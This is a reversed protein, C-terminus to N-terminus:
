RSHVSQQLFADILATIQAFADPQQMEIRQLRPNKRWWTEQHRVLRHCDFQIREIAQDLTIEGRVYPVLQRYGISSFAGSNPDTGANLLATVEEILGAEIQEIARNDIRRHLEERPRWLEIELANYRPEGKGQLTTIPQGTAEYVELARIIRRTNGAHIEAGRPDVARLRKLLVGPRELEESELQARLEPNPEVRPIRWNEVIANVYQPTGGVLLPLKGRDLVDDIAAFAMDQVTALSVPDGPDLFDILHHRAREQQEPSPKATGINMGRYFLRSDANIIEADYREAREISLDTKGVSTPGVLVVIKPLSPVTTRDSM